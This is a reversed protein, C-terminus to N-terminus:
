MEGARAFLGLLAEIDSERVRDEKPGQREQQLEALEVNLLETFKKRKARSLKSVVDQAIEADDKMAALLDNTTLAEEAADDGGVAGRASMLQSPDIAPPNELQEIKAKLAAIEEDRTDPETEPEDFGPEFDPMPTFEPESAVVIPAAEIVEAEKLLIAYQERAIRDLDEALSKWDDRSGSHARGCFRGSITFFDVHNDVYVPEWDPGALIKRVDAYIQHSM